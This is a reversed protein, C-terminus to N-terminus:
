LGTVREVGVFRALEVLERHLRALRASSRGVGREWWLGLVRFIGESRDLKADVRGTFRSGELIPLVYYGFKRKEPPVWIEMRQEFGFISSTRRSGRDHVLPDFPNLVHLGSPPDPFADLRDVVPTLGYLGRIVQDDACTMAVAQVGKGRNKECWTRAEELSVAHFFRSIQTPTATVLRKLAEVCAWDIFQARTVTRSFHHEPIIRQALDYVKEQGNRRAVALTGARWLYEMTMKALSPRAFYPDTWQVKKSAVQRPTLPGRERIAKLVRSRMSATVQSFYRRYGPHTEGNRFRRFYHKWYPYADIPLVAASHTWNEFATRDMELAKRLDSRRYRHNRTFLIHHHSREVTAIADVQVHTLGLLAQHVWKPGSTATVAPLLDHPLSTSLGNVSLLANRVSSNALVPKSAM